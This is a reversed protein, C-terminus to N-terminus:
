RGLRKLVVSDIWADGIIKSDFKSSKERKISIRVAGCAAPLEFELDTRKWMVTGTVPDTKVVFPGCHMGSVEMIIGNQTTLGDTRIYASLRYKGPMLPVVQRVISLGPNTNGGFNVSLSADGAYKIDKDRFVRVGESRGTQWDFGGNQLPLEFDGNWVLEDPPSDGELVEFRKVFDTWEAMAEEIRGSAILFDTFRLYDERGPGLTKMKKWAAVSEGSLNHATLFALYRRYYSLEAPVLNELVSSPAVGMGHCLLYVNEQEEPAMSIYKRFLGIAEDSRDTLLSLVGSEWVTVPNSGDARVARDAAFRAEERLGIDMYARALALWTRADTPNKRLSLLYHGVAKEVSPREPVNYAFLGLLYHYHADEGTIKSAATVAKEDLGSDGATLFVSLAPRLSLMMSSAAILLSIIRLLVM